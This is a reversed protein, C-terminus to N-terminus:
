GSSLSRGCKRLLSQPMDTTEHNFFSQQLELCKVVAYYRTPLPSCFYAKEGAVERNDPFFIDGRSLEGKCGM